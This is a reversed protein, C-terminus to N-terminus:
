EASWIRDIIRYFKGDKKYLVKGPYESETMAICLGSLTAYDNINVGSKEAIMKLKDMAKMGAYGGHLVPFYERIPKDSLCGYYTCKIMEKGSSRSVHESWQWGTVEIEKADRGMIDDNRLYYEPKEQKPFIYGCDPCQRRTALIISDCEPCVKCPPPDKEGDKAGKRKPPVVATIPGHQEIVGAFDLVLCHDMHSKLRLGRGAMQVYLGPSMTPRVMAILDIDPYDFGTTLVQANTLATIEGRKYREIIENREAKPTKGTITEATYGRARIIDRLHEAHQVGTAFVLWHRYENGARAIIEDVVAINQPDTDVAKQLESEVWEGGRKHVGDTSLHIGTSKSVLDSLYKHYQLEEITVPEILDDFLAPADTIIGHGLRYPTATLGIVKMRPNIEQLESIFTRYGGEEKHSILHAEDVIVLDVHGVQHSKKRISQIGAFTIPEGLEKRNLGASYVGVPANPWYDRIKQANQEILERVHTLVLIRQDPWNQIADKCIMAIIVSKGAGTPLVLCPNGSNHAFWTYLDQVTRSQYPRPQM